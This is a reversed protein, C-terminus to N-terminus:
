VSVSFSSADDLYFTFRTCVGLASPPYWRRLFHVSSLYSSNSLLQSRPWTGSILLAAAFCDCVMLIGAQLGPCITICSSLQKQTVNRPWLEFAECSNRSSAVFRCILYLCLLSTSMVKGWAQWIPSLNPPVKKGRWVYWTYWLWLGTPIGVESASTSGVAEKERGPFWRRPLFKNPLFCLTSSEQLETLFDAEGWNQTNEWLILIIWAISYPIYNDKFCSFLHQGKSM